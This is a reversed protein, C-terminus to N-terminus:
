APLSRGPSNHPAARLSAAPHERFRGPSWNAPWKPSSWSCDLFMHRRCDRPYWSARKCNEGASVTARTVDPDGAIANALQEIQDPEGRPGLVQRGLHRAALLLPDRDGPRQKALGLQDQGVLRGSVEVAARAGLHELQQAFSLSESSCVTTITVCSGPAAAIASRTTNRRSPWTAPSIAPPDRSRTTRPM